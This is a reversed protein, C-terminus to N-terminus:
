DKLNQRGGCINLIFLGTRVRERTNAADTHTHVDAATMDETLDDTSYVARLLASECETKSCGTFRQCHNHIILRGHM